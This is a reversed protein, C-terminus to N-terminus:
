VDARLRSQSVRRVLENVYDDLLPLLTRCMRPDALHILDQQRQEIKRIMNLCRPVSALKEPM